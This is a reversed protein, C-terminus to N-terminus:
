PTAPECKYIPVASKFVITPYKSIDYSFMIGAIRKEVEKSTTIKKNPDQGEKKRHLM